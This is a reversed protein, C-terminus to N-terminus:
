IPDGVSYCLLACCSNFVLQNCGTYVMCSCWVDVFGCSIRLRNAVNVLDYMLKYVYKCRLMGCSYCLIYLYLMGLNHGELAIIM